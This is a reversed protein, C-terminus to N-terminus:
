TMLKVFDKAALYTSHLLPPKVNKDKQTENASDHHHETVWEVERMMQFHLINARDEISITARIRNDIINRNCGTCVNLTSSLDETTLNSKCM